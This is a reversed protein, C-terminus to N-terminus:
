EIKLDEVDLGRKLLQDICIDYRERLREMSRSIETAKRILSEARDPTRTAPPLKKLKLRLEQMQRRRALYIHRYQQANHHLEQATMGVVEARLKNLPVNESPGGCGATLLIVLWAAAGVLKGGRARPNSPNSREVPERDQAVDFSLSM